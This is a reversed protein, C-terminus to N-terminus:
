HWFIEGRFKSHYKELVSVKSGGRVYGKSIDKLDIMELRLQCGMEFNPLPTLLLKIMLKSM